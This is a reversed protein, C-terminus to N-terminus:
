LCAPARSGRQTLSLFYIWRHVKRNGTQLAIANRKSPKRCPMVNERMRLNRANILDRLKRINKQIRVCGFDGREASFINEEASFYFGDGKGKRKVKGCFLYCTFLYLTYFGANDFQSYFRTKERHLLIKTAICCYHTRECDDINM